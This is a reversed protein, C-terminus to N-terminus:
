EQLFKVIAEGLAQPHQLQIDHATDPMWLVSCNQIARAVQAAMQGKAAAFEDAHELREPPEEGPLPRDAAPVLLVPCSLKGYYTLARDEWLSERIACQQEPRLREQVTGDPLDRIYTLVIPEIEPTWTFPMEARLAELYAARSPYLVSSVKERIFRERTMGPWHRPEVHPCDVLVLHSVLAPHRAALVLAVRAGWGHGVVAVQGLGLAAMGSIIDEAVTKPDYGSEPQASSGHGRLDFALLPHRPYLYEATLRWTDATAALGHLLVVPIDDTAEGYDPAVDPDAMSMHAYAPDWELYHLRVNGADVFASRPEFM